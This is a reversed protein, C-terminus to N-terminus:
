TPSGAGDEETDFEAAKEREDKLRLGLYERPRSTPGALDKSRPRHQRLHPVNALLAKGFTAKAWAKGMGQDTCWLQWTAFLADCTVAQDARHPERPDVVCESRLFAGLPNSLDEWQKLLAASAKPQVFRKRARLRDLGDLALNLIGAREALLSVTLETDERGKFSQTFRLAIWRSVLVGSSDFLSPLENTILLFRLPLRGHVAPKFKRPVTRDDEGTIALFWEIITQQDTRTSLRADSIMAVRKGLLQEAGFTTALSSLGPACVNARGIMGITVRAITGKGARQPGLFLIAKQLSTDPTLFYGQVEHLTDIAEQDDPLVQDLFSLWQPCTADPEYNYEVANITFFDPTHPLRTRTPLHLLCNHCALIDVPDLDAPVEDGIWAPATVKDDLRYEKLADLIFDIKRKDAEFDIAGDKTKQKAPKVFAYIEARLQGDSLADYAVGNWAYFVEQHHVLLRKGSAHLYREAIFKEAIVCPYKPDLVLLDEPSSGGGPTSGGGSGRGRRRREESLIHLNDSPPM